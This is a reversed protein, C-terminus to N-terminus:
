LFSGSQLKSFIKKASNLNGALFTLEDRRQEFVAREQVRVKTLEEIKLNNREEETM